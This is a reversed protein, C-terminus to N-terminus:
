IVKKAMKQTTLFMNSKLLFSNNTIERFKFINIDTLKLLYQNNSNIIKNIQNIYSRHVLPCKKCYILQFGNKSAHSKKTNCKTRIKYWMYMYLRTEVSGYLEARSAEVRKQYWTNKKIENELASLLKGIYAHNKASWWLLAEHFSSSCCLEFCCRLTAYCVYVIACLAVTASVLSIQKQTPKNVPYSAREDPSCLATTM